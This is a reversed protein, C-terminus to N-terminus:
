QLAESVKQYTGDWVGLAALGFGDKRDQEADSMCRMWTMDIWSNIAAEDGNLELFLVTGAPALRRTPKPKKMVFDWGSIVQTRNIAIAKVEAHIGNAGQLWTPLFGETFCAPTLLLLRCHKKDAIATKVLPPCSLPFDQQSRRWAVIRREGGLPALGEKIKQDFTTPLEVEVALTLRERKQHFSDTETHTFELGRTQFLGGEINAKTSYNIRVHTRQENTLGNHGLTALEVEDVQPAALWKGFEAWRWFRPARSHPKSKGLTRSGVLHLADPLNTYVDSEDALPVLPIRQGKMENTPELNLLLCDAPAPALFSTVNDSADLEALLAGRVEIALVQQALSSDFKSLDGGLYGLGARTRVGGTTTAPFPFELSKARTGPTNDFPRGDRAILADRPEILWTEKAM